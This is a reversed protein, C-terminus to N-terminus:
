SRVRNVFPNRSLKIILYQSLTLAIECHETKLTISAAEIVGEALSFLQLTECQEPNQLLLKTDSVGEAESDSPM